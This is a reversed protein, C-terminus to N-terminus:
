NALVDLVSNVASALGILATVVLFVAVMVLLKALVKAIIRFIYVAVAFFM